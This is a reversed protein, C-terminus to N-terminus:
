PKTPQGLPTGPQKRGSLDLWHNAEYVRGDKMQVTASVRFEGWGRASLAFHSGRDHAVKVRDRFTPHLLYTVQQVGDLEEDTGDLFVRWEYWGDREGAQTATNKVTIAM